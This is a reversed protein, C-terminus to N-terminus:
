RRSSARRVPPARDAAIRRQLADEMAAGITGGREADKAASYVIMASVVGLVLVMFQWGYQFAEPLDVARKVIDFARPMVALTLGMVIAALSLKYAAAVRLRIVSALYLAACDPAGLLHDTIRAVEKARARWRKTGIGDPGPPRNAFRQYLLVAAMGFLVFAVAVYGVSAITFQKLIQNM